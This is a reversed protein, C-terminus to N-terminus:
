TSAVHPSPSAQANDALGSTAAPAPKHLDAKDSRHRKEKKDHKHRHGTKGHRQQARLEAQFKSFSQVKDSKGQLM